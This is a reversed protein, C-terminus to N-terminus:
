SPIRKQQRVAIEHQLENALNVFVPFSADGGRLPRSEEEANRISVNLPIVTRCMKVNPWIDACNNKLDSWINAEVAGIPAKNTRNALIGLLELAPNIKQEKFTKLIKLLTPVRATSQKSLLVPVFFYDSAALANVCSLTLLPPCDMLVYDFHKSLQKLHLAKRLLFRPDRHGGTRLLWQLSLSQETYALTDATPVVYLGPVASSPQAYDRIKTAQDTAANELFNELLLHNQFLDYQSVKGPNADYVPIFLNTLSGQLDLDVLLVRKGMGALAAGLNAVVTTKGVGGKLNLVSIIRATRQDGLPKFRNQQAPAVKEEWLRGGVKVARRVRAITAQLRM